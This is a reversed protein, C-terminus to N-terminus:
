YLNDRHLKLQRLYRKELCQHMHYQVDTQQM